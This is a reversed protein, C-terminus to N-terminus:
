LTLSLVPEYCPSRGRRYEYLQLPPNMRPNYARGFAIAGAAPGAYYLHVRPCARERVLSLAQQYLHALHTL